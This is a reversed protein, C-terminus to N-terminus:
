PLSTFNFPRRGTCLLYRHRGPHSNTLSQNVSRGRHQTSREDHNNGADDGLERPVSINFLNDNRLSDFAASAKRSFGNVSERIYGIVADSKWRGLKMITTKDVGHLHLLMAFSSRISHTGVADKTIGLSEEGIESVANRLTDRVQKSSVQSYTRNVRVLNVLSETSGRPYNLIRNNIAAWTKVPCLSSNTKRM